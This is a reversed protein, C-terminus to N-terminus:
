VTIASHHSGTEDHINREAELAEEPQWKQITVTELDKHDQHRGM